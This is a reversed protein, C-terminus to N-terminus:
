RKTSRQNFLKEFTRTKPGIEILEGSYARMKL